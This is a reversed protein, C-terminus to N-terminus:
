LFLTDKCDSITKDNHSPYPQYRYQYQQAEVCHRARLAVRQTHARRHSEHLVAALPLSGVQQFRLQVVRGQKELGVGHRHGQAAVGGMGVRGGLRRAVMGVPHM